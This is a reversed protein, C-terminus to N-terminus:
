VTEMLLINELRRIMKTAKRQVQELLEAKKKHQSGQIQTCYEQCPRVLVSCLLFIVENERRAVERKICGLICNQDAPVCQQIMDLKKNALVELKKEASSSETLEKGTRYVYRSNDWVLHLM